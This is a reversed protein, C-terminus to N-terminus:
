AEGVSGCPLVQSVGVHGQDVATPPHHGDLTISLRVVTGAPGTDVTLEDCLQRAMWLGRGGPVLTAPPPTPEVWDPPIGDGTDTVECSLVTGATWLRVRGRGDTHRVANTIIENVALVFDDLRQGTLGATAAERAVAHRIDAVDVRGFAEALLAGAAAEDM